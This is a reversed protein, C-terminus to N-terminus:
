PAEGVTNSRRQGCLKHFAVLPGIAAKANPARLMGPDGVVILLRKQRSMSVCLRNPSMLHGYKSRRQKETDARLTNSRVMSLFVLDFEKGQFADVTGVRLRERRETRENKIVTLDRYADAVRFGEGEDAVMLGVKALERGIAAVQASYFTIVGISLASGTPSDILRKLEAAIAQAEVPRSKSQGSIERGMDLPVPIWAAAWGEYGPLDHAFDTSPRPSGFRERHPEYFQESVFRGLVPNMRYQEDLTVARRIGDKGELERLLTFLREFLSEHIIRNVKAAISEEGDTASEVEGAHELEREIQSDIIHPLQRHDGVLIIRRRAQSMPILLDLPNARAAEDVLVTEYVVDDGKVEAMRKGAAQQCTAAYVSTYEQVAQHVREPTTELEQLFEAIAIEPAQLSTRFRSELDSSLRSLLESVDRRVLPRLDSVARPTLRLLFRRRLERLQDLFPPSTLGTWSAAQTLLSKTQLDDLRARHLGILARQATIPGDDGFSTGTFRLARLSRILAAQEGDPRGTAASDERLTRALQEVEGILEQPVAARLLSAVDELMAATDTLSGPTLVYAQQIDRLRHVIRPRDSSESQRRIGDIVDRRWRDIREEAVLFEDRTGRRGFKIAPLDNVNLKEIANEVADHQFGTVLFRGAPNSEDDGIENLREIIARIVTTKGTGPPGQILAIDPTNLAASIADEQCRTPKRVVGADDRFVKDLVTKTIPKITVCRPVGGSSGELLLGLQHMPCQGAVIKAQVRRRRELRTREGQISVFLFGKLPPVMDPAGRVVISLAVPNPTTVVEGVFVTEHAEKPAQEGSETSPSTLQGIDPASEAVEVEDGRELETVRNPDSDARLDFRMSGDRLPEYSEYALIGVARIHEFVADEEMQGYKRWVAMFSDEAQSLSALQAQAAAREVGTITRDLFRIPGRMLAIPHNQQGRNRTLRDVLLIAKGPSTADEVRKVFIRLVKGHVQFAMTADAREDRGASVFMRQQGDAAPDALLCQDELWEITEAVNRINRKLKRAQEVIKEDVALDVAPVPLERAFEHIQLLITSSEPGSQIDAIWVLRPLNRNCIATLQRSRGEEAQLVFTTQGQRLLLAGSAEDLWVQAECARRLESLRSLDSVLVDRVNSVTGHELHEILM